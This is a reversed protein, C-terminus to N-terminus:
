AASAYALPGAGFTTNRAVPQNRAHTDAEFASSTPLSITAEVGSAPGSGVELRAARGYATLLRARINALGIGTGGTAAAGFGVGDDVVSVRLHSKDVTAVIAVHGGNEAPALGHKIANEVLTLLVMRPFGESAAATSAEISYTLRDGMRIAFLELYARTLEIEEGLTGLPSRMQPLAASLYRIVNDHMRLGLGPDVRWTRRLNAMTNFLFHPEIQAELLRLKALETQAELAANAAQLERAAARAKRVRRSFGDVITLFSGLVAFRTTESALFDLAETLGAGFTMVGWLACGVASGVTAAGVLAISYLSARRPPRSEVVAVAVFIALAVCLCEALRRVFAEAISAVSYNELLDPQFMLETAYGAAFASLTALRALSMWRQDPNTLFRPIAM